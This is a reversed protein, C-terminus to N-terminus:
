NTMKSAVTSVKKENFQDNAETEITLSILLSRWDANTVSRLKEPQKLFIVFDISSILTQNQAVRNLYRELQGRRQESADLPGTPTNREALAPILIGEPLYTIVLKGHINM